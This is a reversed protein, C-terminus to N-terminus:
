QHRLFTGKLYANIPVQVAGVRALGAFLELLEIRNPALTAVRDGPRVGNAAMGAHLRDAVGDLEAFTYERDDM